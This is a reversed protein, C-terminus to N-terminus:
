DPTLRLRRPDARPRRSPLSGSVRTLAEAATARFTTLKGGYISLVRPAVDRDAVLRTERSRHFAHGPAAPLVRLGAFSELVRDAGATRYRPFYRRAIWQLYRLESATPSAAAPDGTFRVETTGVLTRDHWPMLFVARGDRPSEVYYIGETLRGDLVIHTGQVREVNPVAIAPAIRRAVDDAWPGAANILVRAAADEDGAPTTYRVVVGDATTMASGFRAPALLVAGLSQASRMVARTLSLDDTQGDRYWFVADLGDVDLGDLTDWRRRPVRGWRSARDFGALASYLSLGAALLWPRRRTDRYVPIHFRVLRVLDPALALLAAREHLSERVLRIQWTELYRLGGHILKSSRSSTGAGVATQELVLVRHGAAATAEAVGAGHIGGGVIVLDWAPTV